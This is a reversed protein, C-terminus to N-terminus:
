IKYIAMLIKSSLYVGVQLFLVDDEDAEVSVDEAGVEIALELALELDPKETTSVHIIGKKEFIGQSCGNEIKGSHLCFGCVFFRNFFLQNNKRCTLWQLTM